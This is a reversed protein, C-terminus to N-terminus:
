RRCPPGPQFRHRPQKQASKRKPAAQRSRQERGTQSSFAPMTGACGEESLAPPLRHRHPRPHPRCCATPTAQHGPPRTTTATHTGPSAAADWREEGRERGRGRRKGEEDPPQCARRRRCASQPKRVEEAKGRERGEPPLQAPKRRPLPPPPLLLCAPRPLPPQRVPSSSLFSSSFKSWMQGKGGPRTAAASGGEKRKRGQLCKHCPLLQPPLCPRGAVRGRIKAEKEEEEGRQRFVEAHCSHFLCALVGRRLLSCPLLPLFCKHFLFHTAPPLPPKAGGGEQSSHSFSLLAKNLLFAQM